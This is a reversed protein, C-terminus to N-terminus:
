VKLYKNLYTKQNTKDHYKSRRKLGVKCAKFCKEIYIAYYNIYPDHVMDCSKVHRRSHV